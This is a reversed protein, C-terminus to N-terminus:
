LTCLIQNCSGNHAIQIGHDGFEGNQKISGLSLSGVSYNNSIVYHMNLM